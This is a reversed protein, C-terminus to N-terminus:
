ICGGCCGQPVNKNVVEIIENEFEKLEPYCGLDVKWPGHKVYDNWNKDFWCAGGSKLVNSLTLEEGNIEIRLEGRCLNPYEGTYDIFKVRNKEMEKDEFEVDREFTLYREHGLCGEDNYEYYKWIIKDIDGGFLKYGHSIIYANILKLVYFSMRIQSVRKLGVLLLREDKYYMADTKYDDIILNYFDYGKYECENEIFDTKRGVYEIKVSKLLDILADKVNTIRTTIEMDKIMGDIKAVVDM